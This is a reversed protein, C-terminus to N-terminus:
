NPQCRRNAVNLKVGSIYTPIHYIIHDAAMLKKTTNKTQQLFVIHTFLFLIIEVM